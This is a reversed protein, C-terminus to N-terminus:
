ERIESRPRQRSLIICTPLEGLQPGHAELSDQRSTLRAPIVVVRSTARNPSEGAGEISCRLLRSSHIGCSPRLTAVVEKRSGCRSVQSSLFTSKDVLPFPVWSWSSNGGGWIM